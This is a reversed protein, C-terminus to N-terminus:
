GLLEYAVTRQVCELLDHIEIPTGCIEDEIHSCLLGTGNDGPIGYVSVGGVAVFVKVGVVGAGVGLADGIVHLGGESREGSRESGGFALGDEGLRAAAVRRAACLIKARLNCVQIRVRVDVKPIDSPPGTPKIARIHKRLRRRKHIALVDIRAQYSSADPSSVFPYTVMKTRPPLMTRSLVRSTSTRAVSSRSNM